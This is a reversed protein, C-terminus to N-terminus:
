GLGHIAVIAIHIYVVETTEGTEACAVIDLVPAAAGLLQSDAGAHVATKMIKQGRVFTGAVDKTYETYWVGEPRIEIMQPEAGAPLNYTTMQDADPELRALVEAEQAESPRVLGGDEVQPLAETEAIRGRM